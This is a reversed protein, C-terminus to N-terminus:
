MLSLGYVAEDLVVVCAAEREVFAAVLALPM